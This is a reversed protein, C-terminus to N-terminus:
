GVGDYRDKFCRKCARFGATECEEVSTMFRCNERKPKRAPCTLQCHIKTSAVAVFVQDRYSADRDLLAQYLTDDDPRNQSM